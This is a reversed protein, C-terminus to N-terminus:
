QYRETRKILGDLQNVRHELSALIPQGPLNRAAETQAKVLVRYGDELTALNTEDNGFVGGHFKAAATVANRAKACELSSGTM